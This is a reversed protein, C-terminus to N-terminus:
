FFLIIKIVLRTQSFVIINSAAYIMSIKNNQHVIHISKKVNVNESQLKFLNKKTFFSHWHLHM